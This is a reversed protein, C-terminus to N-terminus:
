ATATREYAAKLWRKVEGDVDKARTIELRHTMRDNGISGAKALRGAPAVDPLALGLDVRTKTTPKIMAFQRRSSRIGVYTKCVTLEVDPAIKRAAEALRDYLPRLAARDDKYMGDLLAGEDGYTDALSKGSVDAAIFKATVTGLGHESKLWAVLEKRDKPGSKKALAVWQEYTRGTKEPLNRAIAEGMEKPTKPM